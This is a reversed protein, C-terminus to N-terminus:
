VRLFSSRSDKYVCSHYVGQIYLLSSLASVVADTPRGGFPRGWLGVGQKPVIDVVVSSSSPSVLDICDRVKQGIVAREVCRTMVLAVFRKKRKGKSIGQDGSQLIKRM